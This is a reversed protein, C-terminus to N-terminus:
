SCFTERFLFPELNNKKKKEMPGALCIWPIQYPFEDFKSISSIHEEFYTSKKKQQWHIKRATIQEVCNTGNTRVMCRKVNSGQCKMERFFREIEGQVAM